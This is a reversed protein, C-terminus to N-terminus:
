SSILTRAFATLHRSVLDPAEIPTSHGVGDIVVHRARPIARAISESRALPTARDERGCMVLTPALIRDIKELVSTRRVAVAMTARAVGERDFGMARRYTALALEPRAALTSRGFLLPAVQREFLGFPVGVRRHLAVFARQRLRVALKEREATTDLLALGAVRSPHQLAFRMAVMGGWSLGVVLARTIDLESFADLLADAHEELTFRPPPESRGHGPGDLVVVRGLASLPELQARWMGGDFLLGHLLVVAPEGARLAKGHEECYLRGLRTRAYAM